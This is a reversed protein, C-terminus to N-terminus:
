PLPAEMYLGVNVTNYIFKDKVKDVISAEDRYSLGWVTRDINFKANVTIKKGHISIEAPFVVSQVKEKLTLEGAIIWNPNSVIFSDTSAPQFKSPFEKKTPSQFSSDYPQISTLRFSGTPYQVADFFDKSLLHDTLKQKAEAEKIDMVRLSLIAIEVESGVISDQYLMLFGGQLEITGDHQGTPKSGIWTIISKETDINITDAKSYISTDIVNDGSRNINEKKSTQCGTIVLLLTISQFIYKMNRLYTEHLFM